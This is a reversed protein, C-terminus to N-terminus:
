SRHLFVLARDDGDSAGLQRLVAEAGGARTGVIREVVGMLRDIGLEVDSGPTEVVGDTYLMISDGDAMQGCKAPYVSDRSLGLAPGSTGQVVRLNGSGAHLFLPPPHGANYIWFEGTVLDVAVHVATAFGEEWEQRLLYANAAALFEAHPMAGLLGGFAGSLQLSRVGATQGKGSVDVLALELMRESSRSAVMFDGSFAEGHASRIASEVSWGEPLPPVTGHEALRDRLDVLMLDSPIGQLGIRDRGRVLVLAAAAALAFVLLHGQSFTTGAVILLGYLASITIIVISMGVVRLAFTAVLLIVIFLTPPVWDRALHVGAATLAAALVLAATTIIQSSALARRVVALAHRWAWPIRARRPVAM